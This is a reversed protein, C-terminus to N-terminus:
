AKAFGSHPRANPSNVAQLEGKKYKAVAESVKGKLDTYVKIGAASLVEWANPGCSGTLVAEVGKGVIQQAAAIGAGGSAVASDNKLAQYQMSDVDVILFYACRGFRPDLEAELDKGTSSIAVKM